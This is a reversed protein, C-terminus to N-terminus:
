DLFSKIKISIEEFVRYKSKLYSVNGNMGIWALQDLITLYSCDLIEVVGNQYM